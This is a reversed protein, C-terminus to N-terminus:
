SWCCRCGVAVESRGTSTATERRNWYDGLVTDGQRCGMQSGMPSPSHLMADPLVRPQV